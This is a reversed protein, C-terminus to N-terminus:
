IGLDELVGAAAAEREAIRTRALEMVEETGARAAIAEEYKTKLEENADKGRYDALKKGAAQLAANIGERAIKQAEKEVPDMAARGGGVNGLTFVYEADYASVTEILKKMANKDIEGEENKAEKVLRAMNNRVNECRTQNLAKAEAETCVHGEAFPTTVEFEVGAITINRTDSM